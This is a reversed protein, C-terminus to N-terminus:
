LDPGDVYFSLDDIWLASPNDIVCSNSYPDFLFQINTIKDREFPEPTEDLRGRDDLHVYLSEFPIRYQVWTSTLSVFSGLPNCFEKICTGGYDALTTQQTGVRVIMTNAYGNNTRAWFTIGDYASADFLGYKQGDFNIDLGIGAGWAMAGDPLFDACREPPDYNYSSYMARTSTGRGGPILTPLIPVGPTTVAPVQTGLGDNYLYWAGRRGNGQCIFGTGDEMDDILLGCSRSPAGDNADMRSADGSGSTRMGADFGSSGTTGRMGGSSSSFVGGTTSSSSGTASGGTSASGGSATSTAGGSATSASSGTTASADPRVSGTASFRDASPGDFPAGDPPQQEEGDGNGLSVRDGCAAIFVVVLMSGAAGM